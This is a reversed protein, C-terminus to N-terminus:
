SNFLSHKGNQRMFPAKVSNILDKHVVVCYYQLGKSWEQYVVDVAVSILRTGDRYSETESKNLIENGDQDEWKVSEITGLIQLVECVVETKRNFFMEELSIPVIKVDVYDSPCLTDQCEGTSLPNLPCKM